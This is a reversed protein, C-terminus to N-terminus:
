KYRYKYFIKRYSAPLPCFGQGDENYGCECNMGITDNEGNTYFGTTYYCIDGLNCKLFGNVDPTQNKYTWSACQNTGEKIYGDLCLSIDLSMNNLYTGNRQSFLGTCTNNLCGLNNACHYKDICFRGESQQKECKLGNCFTGALCDEHVSCNENEKRGSCLGDICYGVDSLKTKVCSDHSTCKEGPLKKRDHSVDSAKVCYHKSTWNTNVLDPNFNCFEDSKCVARPYVTANNGLENFPNDTYVCVKDRRTTNTDTQNIVFSINADCKYQPCQWKNDRPQPPTDDYGFVVKPVCYDANNLQHKAYAYIQTKQNSIVRKKVNWNNRTYERCYKFRPEDGNCKEVANLIDKVNNLYTTFDTNNVTGLMCQSSGFQNYVCECSNMSLADGKSDTYNCPLNLDCNYINSDANAITRCINNM